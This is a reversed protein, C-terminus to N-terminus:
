DKPIYFSFKQTKKYYNLEEAPLEFYEEWPLHRAEFCGGVRIGKSWHNEPKLYRLNVLCLTAGLAAGYVKSKDRKVFGSHNLWYQSEYELTTTISDTNVIKQQTKFNDPLSLACGAKGVKFFETLGYFVSYFDDPLTANLDLDPDSLLFQEPLNKKFDKDHYVYEPGYNIKNRIVKYDSDIEDLLEVMKPYTSNNDYIIIQIKKYKKIQKLFRNLYTPNNFTPIVLPITKIDIFKKRRCIKDTDIIPLKAKINPKRGEIKGYELFHKYPDLGSSAVDPYSKLYFSKNFRNRNFM